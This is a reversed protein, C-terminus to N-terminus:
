ELITFLFSARLLAPSERRDQGVLQERMVFSCVLDKLGSLNGIVVVGSRSRVALHKLNALQLVSHLVIVM